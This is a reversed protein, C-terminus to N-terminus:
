ANSTLIAMNAIRMRGSRTRTNVPMETTAGENPVALRFLWPGWPKDSIRYAKADPAPLLPEAKAPNFALVRQYLRVSPTVISQPLNRIITGISAIAPLRDRFFRTSGDGPVKGTVVGSNTTTSTLTTSITPARVYKGASLRPGITSSRSIFFPCDKQHRVRM